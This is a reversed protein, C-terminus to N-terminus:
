GLVRTLWAQWAAETHEHAGDAFVHHSAVMPGRFGKVFRFLADATRIGLTDANVFYVVGDVGQLRVADGAEVPATVGLEAHLAAWADEWDAVPPGFATVPTATRGAFHTVYEFLTRFFLEHGRSMAEFEDAWDEGPLFGSTVVRLTTSGKDRGELLFEYAVFRGDSAPEGGYALRKGPEWATIDHTPAYGGFDIRVAGDPGPEVDARGMFWSEIGPGTAIADWVQEPTADLDAQEASEFRHGM